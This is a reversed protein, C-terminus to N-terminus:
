CRKNSHIFSPPEGQYTDLKYKLTVTKGTFGLRELDDELEAAIEELKNLIKAKDKLSGFTRFDAHVIHYRRRNVFSRGKVELM